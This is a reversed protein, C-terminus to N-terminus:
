HPLFSSVLEEQLQHAGKLQTHVTLATMIIIMTVVMITVMIIVNMIIM